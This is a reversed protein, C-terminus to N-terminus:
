TAPYLSVAEQKTLLTMEENVTVPEEAPLKGPLEGRQVAVQNNQNILRRAEQLAAACAAQATGPVQGRSTDEDEQLSYHRLEHSRADNIPLKDPMIPPEETTLLSLPYAAAVVVQPTCPAISETSETLATMPEMQSAEVAAMGIQMVRMVGGNVRQFEGKANKKFFVLGIAQLIVMGPAVESTQQLRITENVYEDLAYHASEKYDFKFAETDFNISGGNAVFQFHTAGEPADIRSHPDFPKATFQLDGTETDITSSTVVKCVKSFDVEKRFAFDELQELEGAYLRRHGRDNVPDTRIIRTCLANVRPSLHSDALKMLKALPWLVRRILMSSRSSHRFEWSNERTRAYDPSTLVRERTVTSKEKLYYQGNRKYGTVGGLSGTFPIAGCQKAM